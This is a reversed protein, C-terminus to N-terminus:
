NAQRTNLRWRCLKSSCSCPAAFDGRLPKWVRIERPEALQAPLRQWYDQRYDRHIQVATVDELSTWTEYIMFLSPNEADRHLVANVFSAEHRMADLVPTLLELFEEARGPKVRLTVVFTVDSASYPHPQM